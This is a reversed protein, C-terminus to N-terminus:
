RCRFQDSRTGKGWWALWRILGIGGTVCRGYERPLDGGTEKLWQNVKAALSDIEEVNDNKIGHM